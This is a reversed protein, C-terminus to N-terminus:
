NESLVLDSYYDVLAVDGAPGFNTKDGLHNQVLEVYDDQPMEYLGFQDLHPNRFQSDLLTYGGRKLRSCLHILAIKSADTVSSFMSEGCFIGGLSLGYLGGVLLNDQWCEVSHAYGQEHLHIYLAIIDDNIWTTDHTDACAHIVDAFATNVKLNFPYSRATRRLRKSIHLDIPLLARIQPAYFDFGEAKRHEAMPFFGMAYMALVDDPNM